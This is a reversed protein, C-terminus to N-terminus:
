TKGDGQPVDAPLPREERRKFGALFFGRLLPRFDASFFVIIAIVIPPLFLIAHLVLAYSFAVESGVGFARLIFVVAFEFTGLAAPLAPLATVFYLTAVVALTAVIPSIIEGSSTRIEMGYALIWAVLGIGLWYIITLILSYALRGRARTLQIVSSALAALWPIRQIIPKSSLWIFIQMLLVSIAAIAVAWLVYPTLSGKSPLLLLGAGLLAASAVLDLVREMGLTALAVGVKVKYRLTLLVFQAAEGIVRVPVLNNLGVGANQVLLLRWLPLKDALFLVQWRYALLVRFFFFVLLSILAFSIPLSKFGDFVSGWDELGRIALWGLGLSFLVGM